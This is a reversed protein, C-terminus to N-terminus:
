DIGAGSSSEPLSILRHLNCANQKFKCQAVGRASPFRGGGSIARRCIRSAANRSRENVSKFAGGRREIARAQGELGLIEECLSLKLGNKNFLFNFFVLIISLYLSKSVL